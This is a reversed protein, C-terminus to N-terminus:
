PGSFDCQGAQEIGARLPEQRAPPNRSFHRWSVGAQACEEPRGIGFFRICPARMTVVLRRPIMM